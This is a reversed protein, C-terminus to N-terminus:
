REIIWWLQLTLTGALFLFHLIEPIVLQRTQAIIMAVFTAIPITLAVWESVDIGRQIFVVSFGFFLLWLLLDVKKQAHINKRQKFLSFSVLIVLTFVGFFGIHLLYRWGDFDLDLFGINDAVHRVLADLNGHVIFLIMMCIMLPTFYGIIYQLWERAKLTRLSSLAVIGFLFLIHYGFYCLGAISLWFGSDFIRSATGSKKHTAFLSGMAVLVFTNGILPASMGNYSPFYSVILVYLLGPFLTLEYTLRNQIVVRNLQLAQFYVLLIGAIVWVVSSEFNEGALLRPVLGKAPIEQPFGGPIALIRVLVVYPLLLLSNLFRNNRFFALVPDPNYPSCCIYTKKIHPLTM